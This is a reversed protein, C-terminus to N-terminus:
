KSAKKGELDGQVAYEAHLPLTSKERGLIEAVQVLVTQSDVSMEKSVQEVIEAVSRSGDVLRFVAYQLATLIWTDAESQVVAIKSGGQEPNGNAEWWIALPNRAPVAELLRRTSEEERSLRMGLEFIDAVRQVDVRVDTAVMRTSRACPQGIQPVENPVVPVMKM